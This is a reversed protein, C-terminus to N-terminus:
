NNKYCRKTDEAKFIEQGNNDIVTTGPPVKILQKKSESEKSNDFLVENTEKNLYVAGAPVTVEKEIQSNDYIVAETDKNLLISGKPIIIEKEVEKPVAEKVVVYNNDADYYGIEQNSSSKILNPTDKGFFKKGGYFAVENPGLKIVKSDPDIDVQKFVNKSIINQSNNPDPYAM